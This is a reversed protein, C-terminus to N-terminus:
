GALPVPEANPLEQMPPASIELDLGVGARQAVRTSELLEAIRGALPSHCLDTEVEELATHLTPVEGAPLASRPDSTVRWWQVLGVLVEDSPVRREIALAIDTRDDLAVWNRGGDSCALLARVKAPKGRLREAPEVEPLSPPAGASTVWGTVRSWEPRGSAVYAAFLVGAIEAATGTDMRVPVDDLRAPVDGFRAPGDGLRAAARDLRVPADDPVASEQDVPTSAPRGAEPVPSRPMGLLSHTMTAGHGVPTARHRPPPTRVELSAVVLVAAFMTTLLILLTLPLALSALVAVIMVLWIPRYLAGRFSDPERHVRRGTM